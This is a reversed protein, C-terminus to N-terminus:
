PKTPAWPSVSGVSGFGMDLSGAAALLDVYDAPALVAAETPGTQTELTWNGGLVAASTLDDSAAVDAGTLRALDQVFSQGAASAAVNCGYLLIDGSEGLHSGVAALADAYKYLDDISLGVARLGFAERLILQLFECLTSKGSGQAGNVGLALMEGPAKRAKTWAALPLYVRTLADEQEPPIREAAMRALLAPRIRRALEAYEDPPLPQLCPPWPQITPAM